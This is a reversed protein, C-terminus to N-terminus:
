QKDFNKSLLNEEALRVVRTFTNRSVGTNIIVNMSKGYMAGIEENTLRELLEGNESREVAARLDAVVQHARIGLDDPDTSSELTSISDKVKKLLENM